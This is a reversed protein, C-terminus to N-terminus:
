TSPGTLTVIALTYGPHRDLSQIHLRLTPEAISRLIDGVTLDIPGGLGDPATFEWRRQPQFRAANTTTITTEDVSILHGTITGASIQGRRQGIGDGSTVSRSWDNGGRQQLQATAIQVQALATDFLAFDAPHLM